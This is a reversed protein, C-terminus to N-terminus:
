IPKTVKPLNRLVKNEKAKYSHGSSCRELSLLNLLTKDARIAEKQAQANYVYMHLGSGEVAQQEGHEAGHETKKVIRKHDPM